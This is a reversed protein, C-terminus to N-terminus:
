PVLFSQISLDDYGCTTETPDNQKFCDACSEQSVSYLTDLTNRAPSYPQQRINPYSTVYPQNTGGYITVSGDSAITVAPSNQPKNNSIKYDAMIKLGWRRTGM